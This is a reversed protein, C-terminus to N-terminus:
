TSDPRMTECPTQDVYDPPDPRPIPAGARLDWHRKRSAIGAVLSCSTDVEVLKKHRVIQGATSAIRKDRIMQVM